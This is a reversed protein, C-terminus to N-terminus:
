NFKRYLNADWKKNTKHSLCKKKLPCKGHEYGTIGNTYEELGLFSSRKMWM